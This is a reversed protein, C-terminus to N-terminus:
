PLSVCSTSGSHTYAIISQPNIASRSDRDCSMIMDGRSIYNIHALGKEGGLNRVSGARLVNGM